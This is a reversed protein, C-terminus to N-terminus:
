STSGPSVRVIREIVGKIVEVDGRYEDGDDGIHEALGALVSHLQGPWFGTLPYSDREFLLQRGLELEVRKRELLWLLDDLGRAMDVDNGVLVDLWTWVVDRQARDLTVNFKPPTRM